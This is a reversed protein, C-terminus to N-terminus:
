AAYTTIAGGVAPPTELLLRAGFAGEAWKQLRHQGGRPAARRGTDTSGTSTTDDETDTRATPLTVTGGSRLHAELATVAPDVPADLEEKVLAAHVTAVRLAGARDGVAALAQMLGMAYRSSIPDATALRRWWNVAGQYDRRAAAASALCELAAAYARALRAREAEAWRGFEPSGEVYFGDLFPGAYLEVAREHADRSVAGEFDAIDSSIVAPNLQLSTTGLFLADTRVARQLAYLSQGLAHKAHEADAEPWLYGLLRDRSIPRQGAAAILVLLALRKRQSAGGTHPVGEERLVVGGFTHLRLM